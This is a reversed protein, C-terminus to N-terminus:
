NESADANVWLIISRKSMGAGRALRALKLADLPDNKQGSSGIWYNKKPNTIVLKV